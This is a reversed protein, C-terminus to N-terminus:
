NNTEQPGVDQGKHRNQCSCSVRELKRQPLRIIHDHWFTVNVLWTECDSEAHGHERGGDANNRLGGFGVTEVGKAEGAVSARDDDKASSGDVELWSPNQLLAKRPPANSQMAGRLMGRARKLSDRKIKIQPILLADGLVTLGVGAM